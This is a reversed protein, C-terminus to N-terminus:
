PRSTARLIRAPRQGPLGRRDFTHVPRIETRWGLKEGAAIQTTPHRSAVKIAAAMNRAEVVYICGIMQRSGRIPGRTLRVKGRVRQLHRAETAVGAVVLVKRSRYFNAMHTPCDSMAAALQAKSLAKMKAPDYYGVCLYKM